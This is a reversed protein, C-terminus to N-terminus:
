EEAPASEKEAQEEAPASEKEAQEEAPAPEEVPTGMRERLSQLGDYVIQQVEATLAKEEQRSLGKTEIPPHIIVGIPRNGSFVGTKEFCQYTGNISVPIIPVGPKTALKLSGAKFDAMPGGKARTGEPFILLSFGDKIYEVGESIARLAARPDERKIMVSRIRRMWTGYLPVQRLNERAIFGFQVTDLAACLAPIDVFGQHNSVYVVPGETPLNEKGEVQLDAHFRTMIHNGWKKTAGLIAAREAEKDGTERAKDIQKKLSHLPPLSGLIKILAPINKVINMSHSEKRGCLRHRM